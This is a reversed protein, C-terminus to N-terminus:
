TDTQIGSMSTPTAPATRVASWFSGGAAIVEEVAEERQADDALRFGFHDIKDGKGAAATEQLAIVNNTGKIKLFVLDPGPAFMEELGFVTQYFAKARRLDSVALNIHTIGRIDVM